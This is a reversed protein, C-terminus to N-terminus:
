AIVVVLIDTWPGALEPHALIYWRFFCVVRKGVNEGGFHKQFSSKSYVERTMREDDYHPLDPEPEPVPTPEAEEAIWWAMQVVANEVPKAKGEGDTCKFHIESSGKHKVTVAVEAELPTTSTSPASPTIIFNFKAEDAEDANPSAAMINLLPNGFERFSKIFNKVQTKIVSTSVNTDTYKGYLIDWALRRDHWETADAALLGLRDANTDPGPPIVAQLFTDTTTIYANFPAVLNTIRAAM